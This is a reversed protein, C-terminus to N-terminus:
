ADILGQLAAKVVAETFTVAGLRAQARTLHFVVTRVTIGMIEAIQNRTKGRAAWMLAEIERETLARRSEAPKVKPPGSLRDEVCLLLTDFDVPKAIFDAASLTRGATRSERESLGVLFLFPVHAREPALQNLRKMLDLGSLGSTSLDSLVLDPQWKLLLALGQLADSAVFVTYGRREFSERLFAASEVDDEICLIKLKHVAGAEAEANAVRQARTASDGSPEPAGAAAPPLPLEILDTALSAGGSSM